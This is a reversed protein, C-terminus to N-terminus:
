NSALFVTGPAGPPWAGDVRFIAGRALLGASRARVSANPCGGRPRLLPLSASGCAPQDVTAGAGRVAASLEFQGLVRGLQGGRRRVAFSPRSRRRASPPRCRISRIRCARGLPSPSPGNAAALETQKRGLVGETFRAVAVLRAVDRGDGTVAHHVLHGVDGLLAQWPPGTRGHTRGRASHSMSGSAEALTPLAM